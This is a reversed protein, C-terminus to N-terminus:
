EVRKADFTTPPSAGRPGMNSTFTLKITDGLFVGTYNVTNKRGQFESEVTFSLNNGDVKGDKIEIKNGGYGVTTGTLINGDTRFEYSRDMPAGGMMGPISGKWKGDIGATFAAQLNNWYNAKEEDPTVGFMGERYIRALIKASKEHGMKGANEMWRLCVDTDYEGGGWGNLCMYGVNYMSGTDGEKALDLCLRFAQIRAPTFGQKAAKMILAMGKDFDKEVGQGNLYLAGLLTQAEPNNEEALPLLLESAKKYDGNKISANADELQDANSILSFLFCILLFFYTTRYFKM